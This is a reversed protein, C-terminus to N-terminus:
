RSGQFVRTDEDRIGSNVSSTNGVLILDKSVQFALFTHQHQFGTDRPRCSIISFSGKHGWMRGHESVLHRICPAHITPVNEISPHQSGAITREHAHLRLYLSKALRPEGIMVCNKQVALRLRLGCLWHLHNRSDGACM